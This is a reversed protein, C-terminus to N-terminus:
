RRAAYARVLEEQAQTEVATPHRVERVRAIAADASMGARVLACAAVMGSRGVGGMCAVVVDGTARARDIASQIDEMDAVSAVAHGDPGPHRLLPLGAQAALEVLRPDGWRRLEGDEVMLVLLQVGSARLAALDTTTDRRYVHGPYRMSAGHKGPLFTMGLRGPLGASLEAAPLWDVRLEPTFGAHAPPAGISPPEGPECGREPDSTAGSSLEATWQQAPM